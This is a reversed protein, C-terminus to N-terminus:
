SYEKASNEFQPSTEAAAPESASPVDTAWSGLVVVIPLMDVAQKGHLSPM